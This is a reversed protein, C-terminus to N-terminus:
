IMKELVYGIGYERVMEPERFQEMLRINKITKTNNFFFILQKTKLLPVPLLVEQELSLKM